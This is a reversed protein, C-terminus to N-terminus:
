QRYFKVSNSNKLGGRFLNCGFGMKASNPYHIMIRLAMQYSLPIESNSFIIYM